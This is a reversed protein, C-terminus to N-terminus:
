SASLTSFQIFRDNSNRSLEGPVVGAFKRVDRIFHSQDTFDQEPFLKGAKLHKFSARFRLIDLYAKLPLGLNQQFYRNIQRSSWHCAASLEGVTAAGESAYLLEALRLKRSDVAGPLRASLTDTFLRAFAELSDFQVDAGWFDAPLFRINNPLVPAYPKFFFEAALFRFSIAFMRTAPPFAAKQAKTELGHLVSAPNTGMNFSVDMRGDPLVVIDLPSEGTNAIM